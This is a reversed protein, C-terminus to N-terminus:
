RPGRAGRGDWLAFLAKQSLQKTHDFLHEVCLDSSTECLERAQRLGMISAKKLITGDATRPQLIEALHVPALDKMAKQNACDFKEFTLVIYEFRNEYLRFIPINCQGLHKGSSDFVDYTLEACSHGRPTWAGRPCLDNTVLQQFFKYVSKRSLKGPVIVSEGQPAAAEQDSAADRAPAQQASAAPLLLAVAITALIKLVNHKIM